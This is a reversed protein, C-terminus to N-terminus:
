QLRIGAAHTTPMRTWYFLELSYLDFFAHSCHSARWDTLIEPIFQVGRSTPFARPRGTNSYRFRSPSSVNVRDSCDPM